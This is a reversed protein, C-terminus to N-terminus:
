WLKWNPMSWLWEATSPLGYRRCSCRSSKCGASCNCHIVHLLEDPAANKETMITIFQHSGEKWGWDTPNMDNAMGMWVMIQYYVRLSHFLKHEKAQKNTDSHFYISKQCRFFDAKWFNTFDSGTMFDQPLANMRGFLDWSSMDSSPLSRTTSRKPPLCLSVSNGWWQAMDNEGLFHCSSFCRDARFSKGWSGRCCCEM